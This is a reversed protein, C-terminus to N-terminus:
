PPPAAAAETMTDEDQASAAGALGFPLWASALVLLATLLFSAGLMLAWLEMETKM